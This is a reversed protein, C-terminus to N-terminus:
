QGKDKKLVNMGNLLDIAYALQFDTDRLKAEEEAAKAEDSLQKKEAETISDNKLIGPLDAEFTPKQEPKAKDTGKPPTPPQPVVIDPQIGLAQISRGSPTYYRATTLRMAGDGKLPILTQVSGKGFSKTGVVIARHHDKLAGTVIESASASGGNILVVIPKGDIVDGPTANFREDDQPQRGRTSVIEGKNLFADAVKIAQTLLGGPNNRLDLVVGDINKLGGAQKEAEKLGDMMDSYTQENFVTLRLVATHGILKGHAAKMRITDRTLKVDFPEKEGKRVITLTVDSGVPGRMMEVAQDLTKGLLSKGDVKTIFDGTKIGAKAAPTGDIPTVVKVFGQDQTVEIGLGGFEGKTQVQMAHWQKPDMYSSHPDLSSLMGNIAAEILKQSNVPEVYQSRIREFIDGFLDLQQYVSSQSKQATEALLPGALQTALVAGAISGGLAAIVYKRM